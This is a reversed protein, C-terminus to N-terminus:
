HFVNMMCNMFKNFYKNCDSNADVGDLIESWSVCSLSNKFRSVDDDSHNRRYVYKNNTNNSKQRLINLNKNFVTPFHDTIATVIIGTKIKENSNTMTNDIITASTETIRTPKLITPVLYYSYILDLFESTPRHTEDKLLYINFDGHM